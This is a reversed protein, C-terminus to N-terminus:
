IVRIQPYSKNERQIRISFSFSDVSFGWERSNSLDSLAEWPYDGLVGKSISRVHQRRQRMYSLGVTEM